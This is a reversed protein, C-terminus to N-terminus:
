KEQTQKTCKAFEERLLRHLRRIATGNLKLYQRDYTYLGNVEGEIDSLQTYVLVSLGRQLNPLIERRILRSYAQTLAKESDYSRYATM